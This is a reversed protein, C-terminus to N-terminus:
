RLILLSFYQILIVFVYSMNNKLFIKLYIVQAKKQQLQEELNENLIVLNEMNADTLIFNNGSSELISRQFSDCASQEM